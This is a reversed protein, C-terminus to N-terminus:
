ASPPLPGASRAPRTAAHLSPTPPPGCASPPPATAPPATAPSPRHARSTPRAASPSAAPSPPPPSPLPSTLPPPALAAQQRPRSAVQRPQRQVPSRVSAGRIWGTCFAAPVPRFRLGGLLCAYRQIIRIWWVQSMRLQRQAKRRIWWVQSMRLQRQAARRFGRMTSLCLERQAARRFRWMTPLRLQRQAQWRRKGRGDAERMNRRRLLLYVFHAAAAAQLGGGGLRDNDHYGAYEETVWREVRRANEISRTMYIVVMEDYRAGSRVHQGARKEPYASIGVKWRRVRDSRTYASIRRLFTDLRSPWGRVIEYRLNSALSGPTLAARRDAPCSPAYHGVKGCKSCKRASPCTTFYHGPKGCRSCRRAAPCTTVYHGHAGCNRCRRASPCTQANHGAKGCVSCAM